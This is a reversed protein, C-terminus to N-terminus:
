SSRPTVRREHLLNTGGARWAFREGGHEVRERGFRECGGGDEREDLRAGVAVLAARALIKRVAGVGSEVRQRREIAASRAM